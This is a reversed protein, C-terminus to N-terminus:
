GFASRIADQQQPFLHQYRQQQEPTQHGMWAYILRLDIGKSVCISAFGHRLANWGPLVSWESGRLTREFHDSAENETLPSANMEERETLTEM